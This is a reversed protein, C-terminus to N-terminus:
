DMARRLVPMKALESSAESALSLHWELVFNYAEETLLDLAVKAQHLHPSANFAKGSANSDTERLAFGLVYHTGDLTGLLPLYGSPVTNPDDVEDGLLVSAGLNYVPNTIEFFESGGPFKAFSLAPYVLPDTSTGINVIPQQQSIATARVTVGDKRIDFGGDPHVFPLLRGLLMPSGTGSSSIGVQRDLSNAIGVRAPTRRLRVLFADGDVTVDFDDRLYHSNEAHSASDELYDGFVLDGHIANSENLEPLPRYLYQTRTEFLDQSGSGNGLVTGQDSTVSVLSHEVGASLTTPNASPDFNDDFINGILVKANDRGTSDLQRGGELAGANVAAQMSRRSLLVFGYDLTLALVGLVALLMLLFLILVQGKRSTMRRHTM